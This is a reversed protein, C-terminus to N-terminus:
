VGEGASGLEAEARSDAKARADAIWVMGTWIVTVAIPMTTGCTAMGHLMPGADASNEKAMPCPSWPVIEGQWVHELTLLKGGLCCALRPLKQAPM